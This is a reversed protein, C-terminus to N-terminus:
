KNSFKKVKSELLTNLAIFNERIGANDADWMNKNKQLRM